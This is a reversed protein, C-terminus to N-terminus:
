KAPRVQFEVRRNLARAWAADQDVIPKGEGVTATSMRSGDIGLSALETMVIQARQLGLKQNYADDGRNDTHGEVVITLNGREKLRQAALYVQGKGLDTLRASDFSFAIPTFVLREVEVIKEVIKEQIQTVPKEVPVQVVKVHEPMPVPAPAQPAVRVSPQQVKKPVGYDHLQMPEALVPPHSNHGFFAEQPRTASVIWHFPRFLTWEAIWGVPHWAYALIRLPHSQSEDYADPAAMSPKGSLGILLALATVQAIKKGM